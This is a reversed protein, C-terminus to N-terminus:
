FDNKLQMTEDERGQRGEIEDIGEERKCEM